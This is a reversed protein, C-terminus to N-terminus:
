SIFGQQYSKISNSRFRWSILDIKKWAMTHHNTVKVPIGFSFWVCGILYQITSSVLLTTQRSYIPLSALTTKVLLLRTARSLSKLKWGALKKKAKDLIYHFNMKRVWSHLLPAGLYTGLVTPPGFKSSLFISHYLYVLTNPSFWVWFKDRNVRQSSFGCFDSLIHEMIRTQSFEVEGFFTPQICLFCALNEPRRSSTQYYGCEGM